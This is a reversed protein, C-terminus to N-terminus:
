WSAGLGWLMLGNMWILPDIRRPWWFSGLVRFFAGSAGWVMWSCGGLVLRAAISRWPRVWPCSPGRSPKGLAALAGWSGVLVLEFSLLPGVSPGRPSVCPGCLVGLAWGSCASPKLNNAQEDSHVPRHLLAALHRNLFWGWLVLTAGWAGGPGCLVGM